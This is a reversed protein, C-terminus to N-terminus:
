NTLKNTILSRKVGQQGGPSDIRKPQSRNENSDGSLTRKSQESNKHCNVKIRGSEIGEGRPVPKGVRTESFIASIAAHTAAGKAVLFFIFYIFLYFFVSGLTGTGTNQPWIALNTASAANQGSWSTVYNVSRRSGLSILEIWILDFRISNFWM